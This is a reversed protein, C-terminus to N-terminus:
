LIEDLAIRNRDAISNSDGKEVIELEDASIPPGFEPFILTVGIGFLTEVKKVVFALPELNGINIKRKVVDGPKIVLRELEIM